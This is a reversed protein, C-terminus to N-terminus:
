EASSTITRVLQGFYLREFVEGPACRRLLTVIRAGRGVMYRLRPRRSTIARYVAEAVDRSTTPSSAVVRDALQEERRFWGRYPSRPDDAGAATVRNVSWAETKIMGPEVLSVHIGFPMVEQALSEGFGELAFKTAAYASIGFSGIRGAVSSMMVIRGARAARMHPLVARTMSMTGFVNTVFVRRIEAPALDEFCGRLRTGANNVLAFIGGSEGAVTGVAQSVSRADTIDLEIVRISVGRQAAAKEMAEGDAPRLTSGTVDFDREALLLATELGLGTSAGTVLVSRGMAGGRGVPAEPEPM